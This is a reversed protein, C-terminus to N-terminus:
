LAFVIIKECYNRLVSPPVGDIFCGAGDVPDWKDVPTLREPGSINEDALTDAPGSAGCGM